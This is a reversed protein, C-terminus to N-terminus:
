NHPKAAAAKKARIFRAALLLSIFSALSFACSLWLYFLGEKGEQGKIKLFFAKDRILKKLELYQGTIVGSGLVLVLTAIGSLVSTFVAGSGAITIIFVFVLTTALFLLGLVLLILGSYTTVRLRKNYPGSNSPIKVEVDKKLQSKLLAVSNFYYDYKPKSCYKFKIRDDSKCYNWLYIYYYNSLGIKNAPTLGSYIVPTDKAAFNVANIKFVYNHDMHPNRKLGAFLTFLLSIIGLSVLLLPLVTRFIRIAWVGM